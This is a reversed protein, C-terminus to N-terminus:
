AVMAINRMLAEDQLDYTGAVKGAIGAEIALSGNSKISCSLVM